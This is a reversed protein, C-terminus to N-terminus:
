QNSSDKSFLFGVRLLSLLCEYVCKEVFENGYAESFIGSHIVDKVSNPFALNMWKHLYLDVVFIDSTPQKRTLMELLM